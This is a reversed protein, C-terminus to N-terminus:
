QEFLSVSTKKVDRSKVLKQNEDFIYVLIVFKRKRIEIINEAQRASRRLVALGHGM